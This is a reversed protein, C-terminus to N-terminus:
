KAELCYVRYFANYQAILVHKQMKTSANHKITHM